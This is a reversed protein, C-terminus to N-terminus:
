AGTCNQCNAVFTNESLVNSSSDRVKVVVEKTTGCTFTGDTSMTGTSGEWPSGGTPDLDYSDGGFRFHDPTTTATSISVDIRFDIRCEKPSTCDENNNCRGDLEGENVVTISGTLHHPSVDGPAQSANGGDAAEGIM